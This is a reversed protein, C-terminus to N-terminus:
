NAFNFEAIFFMELYKYYFYPQKISGINKFSLGLPFCTGRDLTQREMGHRMPHQRQVELAFTKVKYICHVM